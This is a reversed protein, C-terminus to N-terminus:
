HIFDPRNNWLKDLDIDIKYDSFSTLIKDPTVNEDVFLPDGDKRGVSLLYDRFKFGNGEDANSFRIWLSPIKYADALIIGHLSSSAINECECIKDIFTDGSQRVDIIKVEKNIKCSKLWNNNIDSIHPIIGLKYKKEVRSKYFRPYLLIPDGFVTPCKIGQSLLAERSLPGRVALVNRPIGRTKEGYKLFGMGWITSYEDAFSLLSGILLYINENNKKYSWDWINILEPKEGSIKEIFFGNALDGWNDLNLITKLKIM